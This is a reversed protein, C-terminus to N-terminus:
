EMFQEINNIYFAIVACRYQQDLIDSGSKANMIDFAINEATKNSTAVKVAKSIISSTIGVAEDPITITEIDSVIDPNEVSIIKESAKQLGILGKNIGKLGKGVFSNISDTVTETKDRFEDTGSLQAPEVNQRSILEADYKSIFSSYEDLFSRYLETNNISRKEVFIGAKNGLTGINIGYKSFNNDFNINSLAPSSVKNKGIFVVKNTSSLQAENNLYIKEDWVVAEVTGDRVGIINGEADDKLSILASLLEGYCKTTEDVVIILKRLKEGLM